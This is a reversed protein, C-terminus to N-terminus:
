QVPACTSVGAGVITLPYTAIQVVAGTSPDYKQVISTTSSGAAGGGPNTFLYFNGGWFAFAWGGGQEVAPLSAQGIVHANTKDIEAVASGVSNLGGPAWFAFLRGDGTGTLEAAIVQPTFMGIPNLALTAENIAGLVSPPASTVSVANNSAIFLTEDVGVDNAVFAMGFSQFLQSPVYATPVCAATNLNVRYINAPPPTLGQALAAEDYYAVYAHGQRDVAMSFPTYPDPCNLPGIPTFQASAPDFKLIEFTGGVSDTTVAYILTDGADACAIQQVVDRRPAVDLGPLAVDDIVVVADPTAGADVPTELLFLGSRAGCAVTLAVPATLGLLVAVARAVKMPERVKGRATEALM